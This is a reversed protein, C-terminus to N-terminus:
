LDLMCYCPKIKLWYSNMSEDIAFVEIIKVSNGKNALSKTGALHVTPTCSLVKTQKKAELLQM